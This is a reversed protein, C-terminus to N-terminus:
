LSKPRFVPPTPIVYHEVKIIHNFLLEETGNLEAERWDDIMQPELEAIPRCCDDGEGETLRIKEFTLFTQQRGSASM